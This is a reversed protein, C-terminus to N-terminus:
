GRVTRYSATHVEINVGSTLEVTEKLERNLYPKFEDLALLGRLYGLVQRAQKRDAAIIPVVALEGPALRSVDFRIALYLAVLAAIRSKGGRRGIPMWAESVPSAPPTERDTHRRYTALEDDTMPLAFIAKLFARWAAWSPGTLGAADLMDLIDGQFPGDRRRRNEATVEGGKRGAERARESGEKFSGPTLAM